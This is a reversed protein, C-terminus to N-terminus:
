ARRTPPAILRLTKWLMGCRRTIRAVLTASVDTVIGADDVHDVRADRAERAVVRARPRRAQLDLADRLRAGILALAAAPADAFPM